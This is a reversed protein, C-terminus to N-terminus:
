NISQHVMHGGQTPKNSLLGFLSFKSKQGQWTKIPNFINMGCEDVSHLHPSTSARQNGPMWPCLRLMYVCLRIVYLSPRSGALFSQPLPACLALQYLRVWLIHHPNTLLGREWKCYYCQQHSPSKLYHFEDQLWIFPCMHLLVERIHWCVQHELTVERKRARCVCAQWM